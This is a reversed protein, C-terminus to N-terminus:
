RLENLYIVPCPTGVAGRLINIVEKQVNPDFLAEAHNL